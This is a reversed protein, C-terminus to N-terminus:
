AAYAIMVGKVAEVTTCSNIQVELAQQQAVLPEVYAEIALELAVLDNYTWETGEQGTANWKLAPNLGTALAVQHRALASALLSQKEATVSYRNGDTYPLPHDDLYEALAAKSEAIKAAKYDELSTGAPIYASYPDGTIEEYQEPTIVGKVVAMNVQVKSWLKRDYNRKIQEFGM